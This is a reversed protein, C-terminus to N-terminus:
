KKSKSYGILTAIAYGIMVVMVGLEWGLTSDMFHRRRNKRISLKKQKTQNIM